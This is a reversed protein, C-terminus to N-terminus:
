GASEDTNSATSAPGSWKKLTLLAQVRLHHGCKCMSASRLTSSLASIKADKWDYSNDYSGDLKALAVMAVAEDYMM